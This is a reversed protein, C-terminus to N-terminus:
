NELYKNKYISLITISKRNLFLISNFKLLNTILPSFKVSCVKLNKIELM